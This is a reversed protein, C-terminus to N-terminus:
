YVGSLQKLREDLAALRGALKARYYSVNGTSVLAVLEGHLSAREVELRQIKKRKYYGKIM